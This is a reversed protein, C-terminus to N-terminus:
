QQPAGNSVVVTKIFATGNDDFARLLYLGANLGALPFISTGHDPQLTRVLRGDMGLVEVRQMSTGYPLVISVVDSAPNPFVQLGQDRDMLTPASLSLACPGGVPVIDQDQYCSFTCYCEYIAGCPPIGPFGFGGGGGMRERITLTQGTPIGTETLELLQTRLPVGSVVSTSTDLVQWTHDPCDEQYPWFPQWHDGPVASFWYLTDWTTGDWEWVVNGNTRTFFPDWSTIVNMPQTQQYTRDIRQAPFGDVITDTTYTLQLSSSIWPDGVDYVWQAGPPCWSQATCALNAAFLLLPLNLRKM